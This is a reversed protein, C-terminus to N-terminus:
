TGQQLELKQIEGTAEMNQEEWRTVCQSIPDMTEAMDWCIRESSKILYLRWKEPLESDDDLQLYNELTKQDWEYEDMAKRAMELDENRAEIQANLVDITNMHSQTLASATQELKEKTSAFKEKTSALEEGTSALLEKTSTLSEESSLLSKTTQELKQTAAALSAGVQALIETLQKVTATLAEM